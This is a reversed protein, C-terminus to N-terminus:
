TVLGVNPSLFTVKNSDGPCREKNGQLVMSFTDSDLQVESSIETM